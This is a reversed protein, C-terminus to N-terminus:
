GHSGEVTELVKTGSALLADAAERGPADFVLALGRGTLRFGSWGSEIRLLGGEGAPAEPLYAKRFQGLAVRAANADPYLVLVVRATGYRATVAAVSPGLGLIDRQALFYASNLVLHSRFFCVTDPRLATGAVVEPLASALRPPAPASRGAVIVRGLALVADRSAGSERTAMVRAYLDASWIRLLGAGYLARPPAPPSGALAVPDGGWDGSLLGYADDSTGMWYLEVLIDGGDPSAYEAVDLHGFRYALYLEGAGDMYDFIGAADIRRPAATRTWDGVTEPLNVTASERGAATDGSGMAGEAGRGVTGLLALGAAAIRV